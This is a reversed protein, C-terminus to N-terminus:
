ERIISKVMNTCLVRKEVFIKHL